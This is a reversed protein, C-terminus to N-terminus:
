KLVGTMLVSLSIRCFFKHIHAIEPTEMMYDSAAKGHMISLQSVIQRKLELDKEQRALEVLHVDDKSIFFASIVARKVKPDNTTRYAEALSDNAIKGRYIASSQIAQAQLEPGLKGIVIENMLATAEPSKSQGLAFFAQQKVSASQDSTLLNRVLPM